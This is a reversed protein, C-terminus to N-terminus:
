HSSAYCQSLYHGAYLFVIVCQSASYTFNLIVTIGIAVLYMGVACWFQKTSRAFLLLMYAGVFLLEFGARMVVPAQTTVGIYLAVGIMLLDNTLLFSRAFEYPLLKGLPVNSWRAEQENASHEKSTTEFIYLEALPNM